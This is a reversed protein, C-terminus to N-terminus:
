PQFWVEDQLLFLPVTKAFERRLSIRKISSFNRQRGLHLQSLGLNLLLYEEAQVPKVRRHRFYPDVALFFPTEGPRGVPNLQGMGLGPFGAPFGDKRWKASGVPGRACLLPPFRLPRPRSHVGWGAKAQPLARRSVRARSPTPGSAPDYSRSRGSDPAEKRPRAAGASLPPPSVPKEVPFRQKDVSYKLLFARNNKLLVAPSKSDPPIKVIWYRLSSGFSLHIKVTYKRHLKEHM